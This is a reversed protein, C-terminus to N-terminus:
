GYFKGSFMQKSSKIGLKYLEKGDDTLEDDYPPPSPENMMNDIAIQLDIAAKDCERKARMKQYTAANQKPTGKRINWLAYPGTDCARQMQLDCAGNGRRAIDDGWFNGWEQFTLHFEIGRRKANSRQAHFAARHDALNVM